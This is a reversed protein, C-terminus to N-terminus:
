RGRWCNPSASRGRRGSLAWARRLTGRREQKQGGGESRRMENKKKKKEKAENKQGGGEGCIRKETWTCPKAVFSLEASKSMRGATRASLSPISSTDLAHSGVMVLAMLTKTRV